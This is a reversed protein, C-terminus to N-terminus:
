KDEEPIEFIDIQVISVMETAEKTKGNDLLRAIRTLMEALAMVSVSDVHNPFTGTEQYLRMQQAYRMARNIIKGNM